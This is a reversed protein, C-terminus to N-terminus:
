PGLKAHRLVAAAMERIDGRTFFSGGDADPDPPAFTFCAKCRSQRGDYSTPHNIFEARPKVTKCRSCRKEDPLAPRATVATTM